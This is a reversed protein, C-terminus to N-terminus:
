SFFIRHRASTSHNLSGWKLHIIRGSKKSINIHHYNDRQLIEVIIKTGFTNNKLSIVYCMRIKLSNELINKCACLQEFHHLKMQFYNSGWKLSINCTGLRTGNTILVKYNLSQSVPKIM